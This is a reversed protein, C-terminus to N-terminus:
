LLRKPNEALFDRLDLTNSLYKAVMPAVKNNGLLYKFLAENGRGRLNAINLSKEVTIILENRLPSYVNCDLLFHKEDEISLCFPCKRENIVLNLHRGKEIMLNHNSLRFKTMSRRDKLNKVNELYPEIKFDKKILSYTRLKSDEKRIEEFVRQQFIDVLRKYVEVEPNSDDSTLIYGLGIHNLLLRINKQWDFDKEIINEFSLHVLPNCENM